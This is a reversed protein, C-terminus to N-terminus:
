NTIALPHCQYICQGCDGAAAAAGAICDQMFTLRLDDLCQSIEFFDGLDWCACEAAKLQDRCDWAATYSDSCDVMCGLCNILNKLWSIPGLAILPQSDAPSAPEALTNSNIAVMGLSTALADIDIATPTISSSNM